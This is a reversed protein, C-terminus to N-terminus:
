TQGVKLEYDYIKRDITLCSLDYFHGPSKESRYSWAVCYNLQFPSPVEHVEITQTNMIFILVTSWIM